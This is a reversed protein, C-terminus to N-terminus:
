GETTSLAAKKFGKVLEKARENLNQRQIPVALAAALAADVNKGGAAAKDGGGQDAAAPPPANMAAHQRVGELLLDYAAKVELFKQQIEEPNAADRNRDPHYELAKKKYATKIEAETALHRAPIGLIEYLPGHGDIGTRQRLVETWEERKRAKKAEYQEKRRKKKDEEKQRELDETLVPCESRKHGIQYCYDCKRMPCDRKTHGRQKCIYCHAAPNFQFGLDVKNEDIIIKKGKMEAARLEEKHKSEALEEAAKEEMEITMWDLPDLKEKAVQLAEQHMAGFKKTKPDAQRAQVLARVAEMYQGSKLCAEGLRLFGWGWTPEVGEGLEARMLELSRRACVIAEGLRGVKILLGAKNSYHEKNGPDEAIKQDLAQLARGMRDEKNGKAVAVPAPSASPVQPVPASVPPTSLSGAAGTIRANVAAAAVAAAAAAASAANGGAAGGVNGGSAPAPASAPPSPDDLLEARMRREDFWRGGMLDRCAQAVRLDEIYVHVAGLKKGVVAEGGGSGIGAGNTNDCKADLVRGLKSCEMGIETELDDYYQREREVSADFVDRLVLQWFTRETPAAPAPPPPVSTDMSLGSHQLPEPAREVGPHSSLAEAVQLAAKVATDAKGVNLDALSVSRSPPPTPPLLTESSSPVLVAAAAVATAPAAATAAAGGGTTTTERRAEELRQGGHLEASVV